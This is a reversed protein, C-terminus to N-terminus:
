KAGKNDRCEDGESKWASEGRLSGGIGGDAGHHEFGDAIPIAVVNVGESGAVFIRWVDEENAVFDAAAVVLHEGGILGAVGRGFLHTGEAERLEFGLREVSFKGGDGPVEVKFAGGSTAAIGVAIEEEDDFM